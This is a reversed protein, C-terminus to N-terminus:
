EGGRLLMRAIAHWLDTHGVAIRLPGSVLIFLGGWIYVPHVRRDRWWDHAVAALVFLNTLGLAFPPRQHVFWLRAIAPTIISITALLMLRKHTAPRRRKVIAAGFFGAFMALAGLPISLFTVPDLGSPALGNRASTLALMGGAALMLLALGVGAVGLKRHLDTRHAAVLSTQVVLLLTWAAFLLGHVHMLPTLVSAPRFLPKLFYSPAFGVFATVALAVAMGVYFLRDRRLAIAM